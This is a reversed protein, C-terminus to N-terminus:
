ALKLRRWLRRENVGDGTMGVVHGIRQLTKVICFKDEPYIQAIGQSDEVIADSLTEKTESEQVRSMATVNKGLGVQLAINKAIPLSDGTLM